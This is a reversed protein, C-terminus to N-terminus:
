AAKRMAQEIEYVDETDVFRYDYPAQLSPADEINMLRNHGRQSMDMRVVIGADTMRRAKEGNSMHNNNILSVVLAQQEKKM